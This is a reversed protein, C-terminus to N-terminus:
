NTFHPLGPPLNPFDLAAHGTVAACNKNTHISM